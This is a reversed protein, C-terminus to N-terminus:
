GSRESSKKLEALIRPHSLKSFFKCMEQYTNAPISPQVSNGYDINQTKNMEHEREM